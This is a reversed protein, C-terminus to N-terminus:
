ALRDVVTNLLRCAATLSREVEFLTTAQDDNGSGSMEEAILSVRATLEGLATSISSLQSGPHM